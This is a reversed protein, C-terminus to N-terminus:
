SHKLKMTGAAAESGPGSSGGAAAAAAAMTHALTSAQYKKLRERTRILDHYKDLDFGAAAMRKELLQQTFYEQFDKQEFYSGRTYLFYIYAILSYTLSTFYAV